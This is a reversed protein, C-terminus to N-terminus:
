KLYKLEYWKIIMCAESYIHIGTQAPPPDSKKKPDEAM